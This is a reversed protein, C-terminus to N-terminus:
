RVFLIGSVTNGKEQISYLYSGSTLSLGNRAMIGPEIDKEVLIRGNLSYIIVSVKVVAARSLVIGKGCHYELRMPENFFVSKRHALVNGRRQTKKWDPNCENLWPILAVPLNDESLYNSDLDIYIKPLTSLEVPLTQLLNNALSLKKLNRLASLESPLETIMNHDLHLEQLKLAGIEKPISTLKNDSMDLTTISDLVETPISSFQNGSLNLNKLTGHKNFSAPLWSLSNDSLDLIRLTAPIAFEDPLSDIKNGGLAIEQLRPWTFLIKPFETFANHELGIFTSNMTTDPLTSLNNGYLYLGNFLGLLGAIEKPLSSIKNEMLNIRFVTKLNGITVPLTNLKSGQLQLDNLATLNGIEPPLETLETYLLYFSYLKTLKGIEAPLWRLKSWRCDLTGLNSLNGISAPLTSIQLGLLRLNKLSKLNGIADPLSSLPNNSVDFTLLSTLSGIEPPIERLENYSLNLYEVRDLAKIEPPLLQIKCESLYLSDVRSSSRVWKWRKIPNAEIWANDGTLTDIKSGPNASKIALLATSDSSLAGAQAFGSVPLILAAVVSRMLSWPGM